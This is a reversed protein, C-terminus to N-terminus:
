DAQRLLGIADGAKLPRRMREILMATAHERQCAVVGVVEDGRIQLAVFRQTDLDGDIHLRDWHDAHGLYEFRRGFHYTWFFPVSDYSRSIGAINAAAICGHQQAVRWHEIRLHKGAFPFSASDGVVYLGNRAHFTTDVVIGGDKAKEVGDVWATAPTVGVGLVVLDAPLREGGEVLVATAHETGEIGAIRAGLRFATGNAEHLRRFMAGIEPGFQRAFPIEEPAVVTVHVGREQLASAAELGIFSSGVIVARAGWTSRAVIAAADQRSRLTLVGQLTAGPLTPVTAVAGTALVATEYDLVTGDALHVQRAAADVRIVTADIRDIWHEAWYGDRRLPPVDSPKMDALVFKSLVTRDYPELVENGILTIRGTFGLDRLAVAAATGGAGSGIILVLPGAPAPTPREAQIPEPSVLVDDGEVHVPYRTLADLAPPELVAGDRLRFTAKHWPCILRHNCVAGEALPAGAHPCTAAFASVLMGDRVLIIDAEGIRQKTISGDRLDSLRCVARM